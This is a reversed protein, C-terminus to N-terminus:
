WSNNHNRIKYLCPLNNLCQIINDSQRCNISLKWSLRFAAKMLIWSYWSFALSKMQISQKEPYRAWYNHNMYCHFWRFKKMFNPISGVFHEHRNNMTWAKIQIYHQSDTIYYHQSIPYNLCELGVNPLISNKYLHNMENVM